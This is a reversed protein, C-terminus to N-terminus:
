WRPVLAGTVGDGIEDLRHGFVTSLREADLLAHAEGAHLDGDGGLLLAHTAFRRALNCDHTAFLVACGARTLASLTRFLMAQHAFDLHATPEDLLYLAPAQALLTALAVRQREGGSLTLIDQGALATLDLSHMTQEVIARDEHSAGHLGGIHPHRGLMVTDCVTASFTDVQQQLLLGRLRAAARLGWDRYTRGDLLVSGQRPASLGALAHLLTSKGSGNRGLLCWTEGRRVCLDAAAVLVRGGAEIRLGRAALLGTDTRKM